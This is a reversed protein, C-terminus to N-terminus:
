TLRQGAMFILVVCRAAHEEGDRCATAVLEAYAHQIAQEYLRLVELLALDGPQSRQM